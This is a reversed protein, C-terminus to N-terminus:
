ILVVWVPFTRQQAEHWKRLAEQYMKSKRPSPHDSYIHVPEEDGLPNELYCKLMEMLSLGSETATLQYGHKGKIYNFYCRERSKESGRWITIPKSKVIKDWQEETLPKDKTHIGVIKWNGEPLNIGHAETEGIRYIFHNTKKLSMRFEYAGENLGIFLANSRSVIMPTKM